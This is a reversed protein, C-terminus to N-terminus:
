RLPTDAAAQREEIWAALSDLGVKRVRARGAIAQSPVTEPVGLWTEALGDEGATLRGAGSWFVDFFEDPKAVDDLARWFRRTQQVETGSGLFLLLPTGAKSRAPGGCGCSPLAYLVRSVSATGKLVRTVAAEEVPEGAVDHTTVVEALVVLEAQALAFQLPLRGGDDPEGTVGSPVGADDVPSDVAPESPGVPPDLAFAAVVTLALVSVM